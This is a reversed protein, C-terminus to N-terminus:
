LLISLCFLDSSTFKKIDLKFTPLYQSKHIRTNTGPDRRRVFVRCSTWQETGTRIEATLITLQLMWLFQFTIKDSALRTRATVFVTSYQDKRLIIEILLIM